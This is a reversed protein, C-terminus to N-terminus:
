IIPPPRRLRVGESEEPATRAIVGVTGKDDDNVFEIGAETLAKEVEDRVGPRLVDRPACGARQALQSPKLELLALAARVQRTTITM